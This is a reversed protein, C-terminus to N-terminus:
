WMIGLGDELKTEKGQMIVDGVEETWMVKSPVQQTGTM